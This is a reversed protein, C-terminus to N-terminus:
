GRIPLVLADRAFVRESMGIQLLPLQAVVGAHTSAAGGDISSTSVNTIQFRDNALWEVVREFMVQLGDILDFIPYM